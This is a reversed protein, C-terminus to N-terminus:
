RESFPISGILGIVAILLLSFSVEMLIRHELIRWQLWVEISLSLGRIFSMVLCMEM